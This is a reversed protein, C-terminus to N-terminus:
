ESLVKILDGDSVQRAGKMLLVESGTLGSEIVTENKYGRGMTVVKKVARNNEKVMVYDAGSVDQMILQDPVVIAGRASYDKVLMTALLNPKLLGNKSGLSAEVEFTRNTPNIARGIMIVRASQEEDMLAPFKVSVREGKNVKGLYIEPVAAVVKLSSTNLIQVIPSGPGAMEGEKVRVMDIYGSAPAYVSAKSLEFEMTEKNKLLSEVQSKAQLYQVESGIKQKWLNEQRKFIDQALSLSEDLQAISKSISELNVKAILDGKKVYQGEKVNLQMIRGGTESSAFAPDELPMVNGQVEVYHDFDKVTVPAVTVPIEKEKNANPDLKAVIAELEAVEGKVKKLAQRKDKLQKRAEDLTKPAGETSAADGGCSIATFLLALAFLYLTNRM